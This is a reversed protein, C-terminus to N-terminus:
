RARTRLAERWVLAVHAPAAGWRGSRDHTRTWLTDRFCFCTCLHGRSSARCLFGPQPLLPPCCPMIATHTLSWARGEPGNESAASCRGNPGSTVAHSDWCSGSCCVAWAPRNWADM